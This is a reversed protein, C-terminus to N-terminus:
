VLHHAWISDPLHHYPDANGTVMNSRDLMRDMKRVNMIWYFIRWNRGNILQTEEWRTSLIELDQLFYFLKRDDNDLVNDIIEDSYGFHNMVRLAVETANEENFYARQKLVEVIMAMRGLIVQARDM